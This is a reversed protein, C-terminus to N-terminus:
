ASPPPPRKTARPVLRRTGRAPRPPPPAPPAPLALGLPHNPVGCSIMRVWRAEVLQLRCGCGPEIQKVPTWRVTMADRRRRGLCVDGWLRAVDERAGAPYATRAAELYEATCTRLQLLGLM